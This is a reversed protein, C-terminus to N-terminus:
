VQDLVKGEVMRTTQAKKKNKDNALACTVVFLEDSGYRGTILRKFEM